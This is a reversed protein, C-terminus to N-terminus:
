KKSLDSVWTKGANPADSLIVHVVKAAYSNIKINSARNQTVSTRLHKRYDTAVTVVLFAINYRFNVRVFDYNRQVVVGASHALFMRHKGRFPFPTKHGFPHSHRAVTLNNSLIISRKLDSAPFMTKFSRTLTGVKFEVINM